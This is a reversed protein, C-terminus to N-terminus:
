PLMINPRTDRSRADSHYLRFADTRFVNFFSRQESGPRATAASAVIAERGAEDLEQFKHGYRERAQQDLWLCGKLLLRRQRWERTMATLSRDVGLQAASPSNDEPLLTDLFAPLSQLPTLTPRGYLAAAFVDRAGLFFGVFLVGGPLARRTTPSQRFRLGTMAM